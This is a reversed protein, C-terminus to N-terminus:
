GQAEGADIVLQPLPGFESDLIAVELEEHSWRMLESRGMLCGSGARHIAVLQAKTKRGLEQRRAERGQADYTM